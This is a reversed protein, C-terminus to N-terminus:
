LVKGNLRLKTVRSRIYSGSIVKWLKQLVRIFLFEKRNNKLRIYIREEVMLKVAPGSFTHSTKSEEHIRFVWFLINLRTPRYGICVLRFWLDTDMCYHCNLDFIEGQSKLLEIVDRRLLMSPGYSNFDGYKLFLELDISPFAVNVIKSDSSVFISSLGIWPVSNVEIARRLKSLSGNVLFDDSNVWFAYDCSALRYGKNLADSQGRDPESVFYTIFQKYRQISNVSGDSSGGDIIILEDKNLDMQNVISQICVDIYKNGNFNVVIISFSPSNSGLGRSMSIM